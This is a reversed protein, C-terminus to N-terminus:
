VFIVMLFRATTRPFFHCFWPSVSLVCIIDMALVLPWFFSCLLIQPKSIRILNKSAILLALDLFSFIYHLIMRPLSFSFIHPQFMSYVDIFCCVNWLLYVINIPMSVLRSLYGPIMIFIGTHWPACISLLNFFLWWLTCILDHKIITLMLSHQRRLAERINERWEEFSPAMRQIKYFLFGLCPTALCSVWPWASLTSSSNWHLYGSLQTTVRRWM